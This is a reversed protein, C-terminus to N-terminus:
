FLSNHFTFFDTRNAAVFKGPTDVLFKAGILAPIFEIIAPAPSYNRMRDSVSFTDPLVTYEIELRGKSVKQFYNKAFQLHSEFYQKDHPLPDLIDNEYNQSYISGFKGNGFTTGDADEQFSVIIALIRLTDDALAAREVASPYPNLNGIFSQASIRGLGFLILLTFLFYKM